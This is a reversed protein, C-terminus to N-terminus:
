LLKALEESLKGRAWTEQGNTPYQRYYTEIVMILFLYVNYLTRRVQQSPTQLMPKAYGKPFGGDPNYFGFTMEMLPDGWLSREFDIMGVIQQGDEDVFVNGDWVDWLVLSPQAVDELQPFHRDLREYVEAYPLPLEVEMAQGDELLRRVMWDFAARWSEFRPQCPAFYGFAPGTIANVERLYSGLQRDIEFQQEPSLQKRVQHLPRGDVYDMLYFENDIV